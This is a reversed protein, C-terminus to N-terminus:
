STLIANTGKIFNEAMQEITLHKISPWTTARLSDIRCRDPLFLNYIAEAFEKETTKNKLLLANEATLYEIEPGHIPSEVTIVPLDYCLAQLPGLGVAGPFVFVDSAVYLPALKELNTLPGFYTLNEYQNIPYNSGGSGVMLLHFNPNMKCLESFARLLFDIRKNETFRGVFLLTNKNELNFSRKIEMRNKLERNFATRQAEIDITNNLLFIKREEIGKNALFSKVGPTYAFFGDAQHTLIMKLLEFTRKFLSPELVSRDKGHGWYAIKRGWLQHLHILPYALNHVVNEVVILDYSAARRWFTQYIARKGALKMTLTKAELIPFKFQSVDVPEEFFQKLKIESPDFVVDFRWDKPRKSEIANYFPVRYHPITSQHAILVKKTQNRKDM